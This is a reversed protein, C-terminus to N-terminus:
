QEMAEGARDKTKKRRTVPCDFNCLVTPKVLTIDDGSEKGKRVLAPHVVCLKEGIKGDQTAEIIDLSRIPQGSAQNIIKLGQIDGTFLPEGLDHESSFLYTTPSLRINTALDAAETFLKRLDQGRFAARQEVPLLSTFVTTLDSFRIDLYEERSLKM